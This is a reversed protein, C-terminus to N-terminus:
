AARRASPASRLMAVFSPTLPRDDPKVIAGIGYGRQQWSEVFERHPFHDRIRQWLVYVGGGYSGGSQSRNGTQLTQDPVIDHFAILGGPRVLDYYSILDEAVGQYSHDGDIFLFDFQESGLLRRVKEVTVPAYSSGEVVEVQQRGRAFFKVKAANRLVLDLGIVRTADPFGRMFLFTNGGHKMGIEGVIRPRHSAAYELFPVIERELQLIGFERGALEYLEKADTVEDLHDRLQSWVAPKPWLSSETVSRRVRRPYKMVQQWVPRVLNRASVPLLRVPNVIRGEM